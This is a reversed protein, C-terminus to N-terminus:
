ERRFEQLLHRVEATSVQVFRRYWAGVAVFREPVLLCVVADAITGIEDLTDRPAVPVAAIVSAPELTRVAEIAAQMTSGTALGDDVLIVNANAIATMPRDGRFEAELSHLDATAQEVARRFTPEAIGGEEIVGPNRILVGGSALAGMALQEQGPVGIKRVVMVDLPASFREAVCAAVPVGGRPLGLVVVDALGSFRRWLEEALM